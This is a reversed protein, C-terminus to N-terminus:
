NRKYIYQHGVPERYKATVARLFAQLPDGAGYHGPGAWMLRRSPLRECQVPRAAQLPAQRPPCLIPSHPFPCYIYIYIYMHIDHTYM